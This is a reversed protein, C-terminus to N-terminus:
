RLAELVRDPTLPLHRLRAGTANFLANGIAAPVNNTGMEGLGRAGLEGMQPDPIGLTEILFEPTDAIAPIHYDALNRIVARGNNPDYYSEETLAGGLGAIMAGFLQSRATRPNVVRGVDFGGAMRPVRIVGTDVDVRVEAFIAGFSHTEYHQEGPVFDGGVEVQDLGTRRVVTAYTEGRHPDARACLRGGAAAVDQAALGYLSSAPDRVAIDTLAHVLNRGAALVAAGVSATTRSGATIPADPFTSDGLEFVVDEVDLGLADAAIQRFITTAGNGIEHTASRVLVSGDARITAHAAAKDLVAPLTSTSMGLGVLQRGARVSGPARRRHWGILERGRAYCERLHKSSFPLGSLPGREAHNALRLDVPDVDLAVATEDLVTELAWGGALVGVGRMPSPTPLNLHRIEQSISLNPIGYMMMTMGTVPEPYGSVMSTHSVADHQLALIRGDRTAGLRMTQRTAPRHGNLTFRPQRTWQLKLPRGRLRACSAVMLPHGFMWAKSGYSGGLYPVEIRISTESLDLCHAMVASLTKLVRTTDYLHLYQEGDRMEWSAITSMIEIANHHHVPTEYTHEIRVEAGDYAGQPDGASLQLPEMGCYNEPKARRTAADMALEASEQEYDVEVLTAAYTAQEFTEAVVLAVVQGAYHVRDGQLPLFMEILGGEGSYAIGQEKDPLPTLRPATEHTIVDVVGPVARAAAASIARVRGRAIRSDVAVAHLLGDPRHEATYTAAGTVKLRGDVRPLPQGVSKAEFTPQEVVETTM